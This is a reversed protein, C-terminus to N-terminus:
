FCMPFESNLPSPNPRTDRHGLRVAKYYTRCYYFVCVGWDRDRHQTTVTVHTLGPARPDTFTFVYLGPGASSWIGFVMRTRGQRCQLLSVPVTRTIVARVPHIRRQTKRTTVHESVSIQINWLGFVLPASACKHTHPLSFKILIRTCKKRSMTRSPDTFSM